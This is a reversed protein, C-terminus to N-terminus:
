LGTAFPFALERARERFLIGNEIGKRIKFYQVVNGLEKVAALRRTEYKGSPSEGVEFTGASHL